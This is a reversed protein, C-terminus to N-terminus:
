LNQFVSNLNNRTILGRHLATGVLAGVVGMAKLQLLEEMKSIGGGVYISARPFELLAQKALEMSSGYGTGVAELNLLLLRHLGLSYLFRIATIPAWQTLEECRSVVQSGKLDVSILINKSNWEAVQELQELSSLTETGVVVIDIGMDILNEYHGRTTVGADLMIQGSFVAALQSLLQNNCYKGEIADLDAIYLQKIGLERELDVAVDVPQFNTTLISQLAQYTKRNGSKGHVAIKNMIDIVPIVEM